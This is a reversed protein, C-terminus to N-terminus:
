ANWAHACWKRPRVVSGSVDGDLWRRRLPAGFCGMGVVIGRAGRRECPIVCESKVPPTAGRM